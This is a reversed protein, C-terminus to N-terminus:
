APDAPAIPAGNLRRWCHVLFLQAVPAAVILGVYCVLVGVLNIAYTVLLTIISDGVKSKTLEFSTKMANIPSLSKDITAVVSFMLFFMAIIGPIICLAYGIATIIGVLIATGVVPGFRIPTLFSKATVPEGNAVRVAGSIISAQIYLLGVIFVAYVLALLVSGGFGLSTEEYYFGNGYDVRETTGFLAVASFGVAILAAGLLFVALGPLIMAGVNNKFKNFAWSFAEGVDVKTGPVGPGGPYAGMEGYQPAGPPPPPPAQGYQPRGYEPQQGYQPPQQGYGPQQGYQPPPPPQQGYQPPQGPQNPDSPPVPPYPPQSM